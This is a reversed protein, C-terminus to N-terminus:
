DASISAYKVARDFLVNQLHKREQFSVKEGLARTCIDQCNDRANDQGHGYDIGTHRRAEIIHTAM